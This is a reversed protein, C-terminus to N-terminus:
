MWRSGVCVGANLGGVGTKCGGAGWKWVCRCVDGKKGDVGGTKVAVDGRLRKKVYKVESVCTRTITRTNEKKLV